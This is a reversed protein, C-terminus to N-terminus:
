VEPSRTANVREPRGAACLLHYVKRLSPLSTSQVCGVRLKWLLNIETVTPRQNILLVNGTLQLGGLGLVQSLRM